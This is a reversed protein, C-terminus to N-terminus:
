VALSIHSSVSLSRQLFSLRPCMKYVSINSGMLQQPQEIAGALCSPQRTTVSTRAMSSQYKMPFGSTAM